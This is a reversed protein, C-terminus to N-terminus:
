SIQNRVPDSEVRVGHMAAEVDGYDEIGEATVPMPKGGIIRVMKGSTSEAIKEEARLRKKHTVAILGELEKLKSQEEELEASRRQVLGVDIDSEEGSEEGSEKGSEEGSEEGVEDEISDEGDSIAALKSTKVATRDIKGKRKEKGKGKAVGSLKANAVAAM